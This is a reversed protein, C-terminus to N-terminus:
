RHTSQVHQAGQRHSTDRNQVRIGAQLRSRLSSLAKRKSRVTELHIYM